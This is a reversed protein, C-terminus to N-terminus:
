SRERSGRTRLSPWVASTPSVRRRAPATARSRTACHTASVTSSGRPRWCAVAGRSGTRRGPSSSRQRSSVSIALWSPLYTLRRPSIAIRALRRAIAPGSALGEVCDEHFPCTSVLRDQPLRTLRIHGIEPHGAAILPGFSAIGVCALQATAPIARGIFAVLDDEAAQPSTTPWRGDALTTGQEDVVRAIIKTGGTEVGAFVPAKM